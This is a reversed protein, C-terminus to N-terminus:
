KKAMMTYISVQEAFTTSGSTLSTLTFHQNFFDISSGPTTEDVWLSVTYGQDSLEHLFDAVDQPPIDFRKNELPMRITKVGTHTELTESIGYQWEGTFLLIPQASAHAVKEGTNELFTLDAASIAKFILVEESRLSTAYAVSSLTIPIAVALVGATRMTWRLFRSPTLAAVVKDLFVAVGLFSLIILPPFLPLIYRAYPNVWLSFIALTGLPWLVMSWSMYKDKKWLGWIGFVLLPFFFVVPTAEHMVEWYHPLSGTGTEFKGDNHFVNRFSLSSIHDFNSTVAVATIDKKRFKVKHQSIEVSNWLSLSFALVFGVVCVAIPKWVFALLSRWRGLSIKQGYVFLPILAPLIVVSTERVNTAMGFCLGCVLWLLLRGWHKRVHVVAVVAMIGGLLLWLMSPIERMPQALAHDIFLPSFALTAAAALAVPMRWRLGQCVLLAFIYTLGVVLGASVPVVGYVAREAGWLVAALYQMASLGVPYISAMWGDPSIIDHHTPTLWRADRETDFFALGAQVVPDQYVLPQDALLRGALFTYGPSDDGWAGYAHDDWILWTFSVALLIAICIHIPWRVRSLYKHLSTVWNM